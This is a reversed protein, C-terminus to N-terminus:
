RSIAIRRMLDGRGGALALLRAKEAEPDPDDDILKRLGGQVFTSSLAKLENVSLEPVAIYLKRQADPSRVREKFNAIWQKGSPDALIEKSLPFDLGSRLRSKRWSEFAHYPDTALLVFGNTMDEATKEIADRGFHEAVARISNSHLREKRENTMCTLGPFNDYNDIIIAVPKDDCACLERILQHFIEGANSPTQRWNSDLDDLLRDGLEVLDLLSACNETLKTAFEVHCELKALDDNHVQLLAKFVKHTQHPRDYYRVASLGDMVPDKDDVAAASFFGSGNTWTAPNPIYLVIFGKLRAFAATQEVISTKGVGKVGDLLVLNPAEGSEDGDDDGKRLYRSVVQERLLVTTSRVLTKKCDPDAERSNRIRERPVTSEGFAEPLHIKPLQELFGAKQSRSSHPQRGDPRSSRSSISRHLLGAPFDQCGSRQAHRLVPSALRRSLAM